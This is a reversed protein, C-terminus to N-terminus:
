KSRHTRNSVERSTTHEDIIKGVNTPMKIVTIKFELEPLNKKQKTLNIEATNNNQRTMQFMNRQKRM